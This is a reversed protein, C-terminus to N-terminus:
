GRGTPSSLGQVVKRTDPDYYSGDSRRTTHHRARGISSAAPGGFANFLLILVLPVVIAGVLIEGM